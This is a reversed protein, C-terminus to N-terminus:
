GQCNLQASFTSGAAGDATLSVGIAADSPNASVTAQGANADPIITSDALVNGDGIVLGRGERLVFSFSGAAVVHQSVGAIRGSDIAGTSVTCQYTVAAATRMVLTGAAWAAGTSNEVYIWTQDGADQTPVGDNSAQPVLLKFGLPVQRGLGDVDTVAATTVDTVSVSCTTRASM